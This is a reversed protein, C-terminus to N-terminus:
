NIMTLKITESKAGATLKCFYIGKALENANFVINHIGAAQMEDTVVIVKNGYIDYVTINVLSSKDIEYRLTTKISFPNPYNIFSFLKDDENKDGIGVYWSQSIFGYYVDQEGNITNAWALHAGNNDSVMDFYDGMKNQNPWGLHPNFSESLKENASWTDGQDDSYSYYLASIYPNTNGERTDLWIVDIRGNPAVSMTGFWQYNYPSSDTNIRIPAEWTLGGDTSRAFMVDGPDSSSYRDVSALVYVNGRGPGESRDVDIWAQGLLGAPNVNTWGTLAGDLDVYTPEEWTVTADPDKASTSKIVVASINSTTGVTYVEGDPGVTVTGWYPNGLIEVCDEYTDGEDISRTFFDPNCISYYSTWFAYINGNGIGGTRDIQMWQKDGGFAYTGNDWVVGGDEIRYIDTIFDGYQNYTLSNYYFNGNEDYELVPDSRFVGADIPEPSTWTLGADTSYGYGAQRFNSAVNDFQRWGIVIRDPNTPDFAISPENAADFLINEGDENVNVQTTFFISSRSSYAPSTQYDKPLMPLYPDDIVEKHMYRKDTNQKQAVLSSPIITLLAMLMLTTFSASLLNMLITNQNIQNSIIFKKKTTVVFFCLFSM